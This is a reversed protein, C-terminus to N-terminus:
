AEIIASLDRRLRRLDLNHSDDSRFNLNPLFHFGARIIDNEGIRLAAPRRLWTENECSKYDSFDLFNERRKYKM